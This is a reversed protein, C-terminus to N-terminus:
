QELSINYRDILSKIEEGAEIILNHSNLNNKRYGLFPINVFLRHNNIDVIARIKGSGNGNKLPITTTKFNDSHDIDKYGFAEKYYDYRAGVTIILSPSYKDTMKNFLELRSKELCWKRYEDKTQFGTAEIYPKTWYKDDTGKFQLPFINLKLYNSYRTFCKEKDNFKKLIQKIENTNNGNELFNEGKIISMLKLFIYNYKFDGEFEPLNLNINHNIYGCPVETIVNKFDKELEKIDETQRGGWEIGCLWIKGNPNGGDFGSYGTAWKEFDENIM